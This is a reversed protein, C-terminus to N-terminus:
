KAKILITAEEGKNCYTMIPDIRHRNLGIWVMSSLKTIRILVIRENVRVSWKNDRGLLREEQPKGLMVM